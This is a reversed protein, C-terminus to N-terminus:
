AALLQLGDHGSITVDGPSGAKLPMLFLAWKGASDAKGAIKQGQFELSVAEGPEAQGWIRVPMDQQLVMHDSVIAPLRVAAHLGVAAVFLVLSNAIKKM